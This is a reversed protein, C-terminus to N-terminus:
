EAAFGYFIYKHIERLICGAPITKPKSKRESVEVKFETVTDDGNNINIAKKCVVYKENPNKLIRKLADEDAEKKTEFHAKMKYLVGYSDLLMVAYRQRFEAKKKSKPIVKKIRVIEYRVVGLDLAKAEWKRGYNDDEIIKYAKKDVSKTYVDAVKKCGVYSCTSITGNYRDHGKEYEADKVLLDFVEGANSGYGTEIFNSAGM